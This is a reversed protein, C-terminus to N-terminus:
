HRYGDHLVDPKRLDIYYSTGLYAALEPLYNPTDLTDNKHEKWSSRKMVRTDFEDQVTQAMKILEKIHPSQPVGDRVCNYGAEVLKQLKEYM